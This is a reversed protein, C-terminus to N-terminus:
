NASQRHVTRDGCCLWSGLCVCLGSHSVRAHIAHEVTRQQRFVASAIGCLPLAMRSLHCFVWCDALVQLTCACISWGRSQQMLPRCLRLNECVDRFQFWFWSFNLPSDSRFSSFQWRNCARRLPWVSPKAVGFRLCVSALLWFFASASSPLAETRM